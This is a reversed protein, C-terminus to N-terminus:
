LKSTTAIYSYSTSWHDVLIGGCLVLPLLPCHTSQLQVDNLIVRSKDVWVCLYHAVSTQIQHESDPFQFSWYLWWAAMKFIINSFILLSREMYALLKNSTNSKINFALNFNLTRFSLFGIHSAPPWKTFHCRQFYIPKQGYGFVVHM